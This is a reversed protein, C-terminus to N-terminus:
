ILQANNHTHVYINQAYTSQNPLATSVGCIMLTDAVYHLAVM